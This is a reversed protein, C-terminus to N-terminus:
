GTVTWNIGLTYQMHENQDLKKKKKKWGRPKQITYTHKQM